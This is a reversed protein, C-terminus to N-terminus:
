PSDSEWVIEHTECDFVNSWDMFKETLLLTEAVAIAAEREVAFDVFDRAGGEPYFQEGAFILFRSM